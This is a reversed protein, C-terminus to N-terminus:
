AAAEGLEGLDAVLEGVGDGLGGVGGGALEAVVM